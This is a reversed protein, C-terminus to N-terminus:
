YSHIWAPIFDSCRIHLNYKENNKLITTISYEDTNDKVKQLEWFNAQTEQLVDDDVIEKEDTDGDSDAWVYSLKLWPHWKPISGSANKELVLLTEGVSIRIYLYYREFSEDNWENASQGKSFDPNEGGNDFEFSAININVEKPETIEQLYLSREQWLQIFEKNWTYKDIFRYDFASYTKPPLEDKLIANIWANIIKLQQSVEEYPLKKIKSFQLRFYESFFYMAIEPTIYTENPLDTFLENLTQINKYRAYPSQLFLNRFWFIYEKNYHQLSLENTSNAEQLAVFQEVFKTLIYKEVYFPICDRDTHLRYGKLPDRERLFGLLLDLKDKTKIKNEIEQQLTNIATKWHVDQADWAKKEIFKFLLRNSNSDNGADKTARIWKNIPDLRQPYTENFAVTNVHELGLACRYEILFAINLTLIHEKSSIPVFMEVINIYKIPDYGKLNKYESWCNETIELFNTLENVEEKTVAVYPQIKKLIRLWNRRKRIEKDTQQEISTILDLSTNVQPKINRVLNKQNLHRSSLRTTIPLTLKDFTTTVKEKYFLHYGFLSRPSKKIFTNMQNIKDAIEQINGDMTSTTVADFFHLKLNRYRNHDFTETVTVASFFLSLIGIALSLYMKRSKKKKQKKMLLYVDQYFDRFGDIDGDYHSTNETKSQLRAYPKIHSSFELIPQFRKANKKLFDEASKPEKDMLDVKTVALWVPYNSKNKAAKEIAQTYTNYMHVHDKQPPNKGDIYLLVGCSNQMKKQLELGRQNNEQFKEFDGGPIDYMRVLHKADQVDAEEVHKYHINLFCDEPGLTPAAGERVFKDVMHYTHRHTPEDAIFTDLERLELEQKDEVFSGWIRKCKKNNLKDILQVIGTTKGAGSHGLVAIEVDIKEGRYKKYAYFGYLGTILFLASIVGLLLTM